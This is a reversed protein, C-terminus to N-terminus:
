LFLDETTDLDYVVSATKTEAPIEKLRSARAETLFKDFVKQQAETMQLYEYQYTGAVRMFDDDELQERSLFAVVETARTALDTDTTEVVELNETELELWSSDDSGGMVAGGQVDHELTYRNFSSLYRQNSELGENTRIEALDKLDSSTTLVIEDLKSDRTIGHATHAEQMNRAQFNLWRAEAEKQDIEEDTYAPLQAYDEYRGFVELIPSEYTKKEVSSRKLQQEGYEDINGSDFRVGFAAGYVSPIISVIEGAHGLVEVRDGIRYEEALAETDEDVVSAETVLGTDEDIHYLKGAEEIIMQNRVYEETTTVYIKTGAVILAVGLFAHPEQAM